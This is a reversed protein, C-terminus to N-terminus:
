KEGGGSTITALNDSSHASGSPHDPQTRPLQPGQLVSLPECKSWRKPSGDPNTPPTLLDKLPPM